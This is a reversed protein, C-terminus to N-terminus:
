FGGDAMRVGAPRASQVPDHGCHICRYRGDHVLKACFWRRSLRLRRFAEVGLLMGAVPATFYIWLFEWLGAPLASAFSRAPNMSMGSVPALLTIYAAVLLGAFCGTFRMLRPSSVCTLVTLMLLFTMGLEAVYAPWVGGPGPVTNVFFVPKEAFATGLLLWVLLVGLAGGVFQAAVYCLADIARVKGLRWFTLTVAPNLHAGSRMGWPSYIIAIATLGMLVGLAARRLDPDAIWIRAPSGSHELATAFVGASVMFTGLGAAEMLYEPCHKRMADDPSGKEQPMEQEKSAASGQATEARPVAQPFAVCADHGYGGSGIPPGRCPLVRFSHLRHCHPM